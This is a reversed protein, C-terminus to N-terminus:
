QCNQASADLLQEPSYAFQQMAAATAPSLLPNELKLLRRPQCRIKRVIAGYHRQFHQQLFGTRWAHELGKQLREALQPYSRSVFFLSPQPYYLLLRQEMELGAANSHALDREVEDLSRSFCDFRQQRTMEFLLQYLPNTVVLLNNSRLIDVDPWHTGQGIVLEIRRWDDLTEIADFRYQQGAAIICVRFGLLGSSLPFYVPLLTQEREPSPAFVALHLMKGERLLQESRGQVMDESFSLAITGYEAATVALAYELLERHPSDALYEPVLLTTSPAAQVPTVTLNCSLLIILVIRLWM